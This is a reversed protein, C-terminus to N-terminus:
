GKVAGSAMGKIIQEQFIMYVILVPIISIIVGAAILGYESLHSSQFSALGLPLTSIADSSILVTAFIYENWASIFVLIGVTALAPKSMPIIVKSFVQWYNCGDIIAAEEMEKPIGKMFGVLLFVTKPLNLATYVIILGILTDRLGITHMKFFMPFILSQLPITLGIIFLMYIFFNGRFKFRSLVFSVTSGLIFCFLVTALAVLLSNWLYMSMNVEFLAFIYNSFEISEPLGFPSSFIERNDKFSTMLVWVFLGFTIAFYGWIFTYKLINATVKKTTDGTKYPKHNKMVPKREEPPNPVTESKLVTNDTAM